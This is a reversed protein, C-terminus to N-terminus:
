RSTSICKDKLNNLTSKTLYLKPVLVKVGKVEEEVYWIMDKNLNDIQEKTLAIGLSLNLDKSAKIGNDDYLYQM